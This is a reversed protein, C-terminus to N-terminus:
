LYSTVAPPADWRDHAGDVYKVPLAALREPALGDLCSVSVAVGSGDAAMGLPKVGCVSCFRHRVRQAAFRYDSLTHDGALLRFRDAPVFALWFRSRACISCNCRVTGADLDIDAEFRVAGCHCQGRYTELSM